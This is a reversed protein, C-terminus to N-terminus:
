GPDALCRRLTNPLHAAMGPQRGVNGREDNRPRRWRATRLAPPRGIVTSKGDPRHVWLWDEPNELCDTPTTM